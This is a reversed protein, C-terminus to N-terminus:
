LYWQGEKGFMSSLADWATAKINVDKYARCRTEWLGVFKRLEEVFVEEEFVKETVEETENASQIEPQQTEVLMVNEGEQQNPFYSRILSSTQLNLLWKPQQSWRLLQFNQVGESTAVINAAVTIM